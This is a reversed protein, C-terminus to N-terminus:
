KTLRELGVQEVLWGHGEALILVFPVRVLEGSRVAMEVEVRPLPGGGGLWRRWRVRM